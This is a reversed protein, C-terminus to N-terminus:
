DPRRPPPEISDALTAVFCLVLLCVVGLTTV